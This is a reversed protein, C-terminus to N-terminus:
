GADTRPSEPRARWPTRRAVPNAPGRYPCTCPCRAAQQGGSLQSPMRDGFDKLHVRELFRAVRASRDQAKVGRMELPFALNQAVSLHPFLAYSQFVIGQDRRYSPVAAVSRGAVLIDGSSPMDFGALLMLTTTKGSGSPGLITLFEGRAVSLSLERVAAVNGYLKSVNRFEIQSPRPQAELNNLTRFPKVHSTM